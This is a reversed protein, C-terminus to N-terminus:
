FGRKIGEPLVKVVDLSVEPGSVALLQFGNHSIVDFFHNLLPNQGLRTARGGGNGARRVSTSHAYLNVFLQLTVLLKQLIFLNVIPLNHFGELHPSHLQVDMKTRAGLEGGCRLQARAWFERKREFQGASGTAQIPFRGSPTPGTM